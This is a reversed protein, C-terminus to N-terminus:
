EGTWFFLFQDFAGAVFLVQEYKLCMFWGGVM